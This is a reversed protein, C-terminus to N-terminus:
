CVRRADKRPLFQIEVTTGEEPVDGDQKRQIRNHRAELEYRATTSEYSTGAKGRHMSRPPPPPSQTASIPISQNLCARLTISISCQRLTLEQGCMRKQLGDTRCLLRSM